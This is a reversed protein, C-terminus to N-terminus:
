IKIFYGIKKNKVINKVEDYLIMCYSYTIYVTVIVCYYCCYLLLFFECLIHSNEIIMFDINVLLVTLMKIAVIVM